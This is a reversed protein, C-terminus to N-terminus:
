SVHRHNRAADALLLVEETSLGGRLMPHVPAEEETAEEQEADSSDSAANLQDM